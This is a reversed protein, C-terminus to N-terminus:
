DASKKTTKKAATAKKAAKKPADAAKAPAGDVGTGTGGADPIAEEQTHTPDLHDHIHAEGAHETDFDQHPLHTHSLASHDHDHEHESYLHDFGGTLRNFNHTVHFHRHSHVLAEHDHHQPAPSGEFDSM